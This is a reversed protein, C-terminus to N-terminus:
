NNFKKNAWPHYSKQLHCKKDLTSQKTAEKIHKLKRLTRIKKDILQKDLNNVKATKLTHKYEKTCEAQKFPRNVSSSFVAHQHSKHYYGNSKIYCETHTPKRYIGSTLM